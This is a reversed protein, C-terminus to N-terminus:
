KSGIWAEIMKGRVYERYNKQIAGDKIDDDILKFLDLKLEDM